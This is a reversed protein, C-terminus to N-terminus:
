IDMTYENVQNLLVNIPHVSVLLVAPAIILTIDSQPIIKGDFYTM